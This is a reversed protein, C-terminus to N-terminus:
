GRYFPRTAHDDSPRRSIIQTLKAQACTDCIGTPHQDGEILQIGQCATPLHDVGKQSLHGWQNHADKRLLVTDPRPAKSPRVSTGFSSLPTLQSYSPRRSPDADILWHGGTYELLAITLRRSLGPTSRYLLDSGSDFHIKEARCRSLGIINTLFGPVYAVQTMKLLHTSTSSSQAVVEM